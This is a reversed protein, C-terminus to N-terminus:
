TRKIGLKHMRSRLTSPHLGLVLAAGHKGEIKWHTKNLIRLIYDREIDELTKDTDM